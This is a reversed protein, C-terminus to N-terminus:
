RTLLNEQYLCFKSYRGGLKILEAHSGKEVLKGGELFLIQDANRITSLRHAIILTTRGRVLNELANQIYRETEVDVSATAEDLIIVPPDKLLARALTLRQKEGMSLRVGREGIVTNEKLPLAKVFDLASAMELSKWIEKEEATPKALLLNERISADFLFPDQSVLGINQRLYTLDIKRLDTNGISIKGSTVDYYRLLLNATTSKGAGTPGVLATTSGEPISFSLDNIIPTAEGYSFSVKEFHIKNINGPFAKPTKHNIIEVPTDLIEFVREGSAKGAAILNNISVLQRVPEYFMNAYLLFAFFKGSTFTPETKLLYAGMGVVGLIGLSSLFSAGPGQISWRYMAELSRKELQKGTADFKTRERSKLAFAQILRNGQIDEVLLSNLEGSAERVAKWNRKSIKAYNFGLVVLIPLPLFVLFALRPEQLFMMTTVGGLTLFAIVGQETGDLIAREVNQVDEVVRSAIEGSKRRDYFSIPLDLLKDHLDKRIKFIVKQELKNNARIRLCNLIEKLFFMIGITLIGQFLFENSFKESDFIEDLVEQIVTPVFVALTTMLCALVMTTAFLLKHELIYKSVRRIVQNKEKSNM